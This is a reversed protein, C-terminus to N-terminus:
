RLERKALELLLTANALSYHMGVEDTDPHNGAKVFVEVLELLAECIFKKGVRVKPNKNMIIRDM